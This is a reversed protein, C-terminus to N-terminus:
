SAARDVRFVKDQHEPVALVLQIVAVAALGAM